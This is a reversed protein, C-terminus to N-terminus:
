ILSWDGRAAAVAAVIGNAVVHAWIADTVRGRRLMVAAFIVGALGAEVWRGHLAAFALTSALVAGVRRWRMGDRGAAAGTGDLRALVYGRFFMEEILPVFIVTGLVRLGAWIAFIGAPMEALTAQLAADPDQALIVWGVGVLAGALLSLRDTRWPLARYVPLFVAVMLAMAVTNLPFGLGAIPFLAAILTSVVMFGAFPLIRAAEPDRRLPLGAPRSGRHHLWPSTQVVWILAVALLTFFLWGAYSHFGNVAVQPSLRAGILILTGIRVVNLMWSLVLGLPLILLLFRGLRVESRFIVAYLAIFATVLAFGEVGSCAQAIQVFFGETGIVYTEPTVDVGSSFLRLFGAVALFTATTLGQWDWIPLAWGALDPVLAAALLIPVAAYHDQAVLQLWARGPGVWALGGVIAAVGGLLWPVLAREFAASLDGQGAMGLPVLMLAVGAAHLVAGPWGSHVAAAALFDGFARPRARILIVVVAMVVLARAVLGRLGACAAEASTKPCEIVTLFQYILVLGILEAVFLLALRVVRNRGQRATDMGTLAM